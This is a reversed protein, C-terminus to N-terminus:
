IREVGVSYGIRWPEGARLAVATPVGRRAPESEGRSAATGLDFAAAVPEVGLALHRGNWPAHARGRNSIWLMVAPLKAADWRLTTRIGTERNALDVRGRAGGVLVRSESRGALPLRTLDLTGGARLPMRRLDDAVAGPVLPCPDPQPDDPHTFVPGAADVALEMAGPREPLAFVPHLGIPLAADARPHVTLEFDLGAGNPTVRRQLREVPHDPPYVIAAVLSGDDIRMDWDHNSGFGHPFPDEWGGGRDAEAAGFPVCPWEGRLGHMLGEQADGDPREVWPATHFPRVDTGDPLTFRVPGLMAGLPQLTASGASWDLRIAPAPTM